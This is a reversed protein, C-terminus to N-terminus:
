ATLSRHLHSSCKLDGRLTQRFLFSCKCAVALMITMSLRLDLTFPLELRSRSPQIIKSSTASAHLFIPVRTAPEGHLM